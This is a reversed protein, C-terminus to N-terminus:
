SFSTNKSMLAENAELNESCKDIPLDAFQFRCMGATTEDKEIQKRDPLVCSACSSFNSKVNTRCTHILSHTQM